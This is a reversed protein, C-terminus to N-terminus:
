LDELTAEQQCHNVTYSPLAQVSSYKATSYVYCVLIKVPRGIVRNSSYSYVVRTALPVITTPCAKLRVNCFM